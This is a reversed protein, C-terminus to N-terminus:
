VSQSNNATGTIKFRFNNTQSIIPTLSNKDITATPRPITSNPVIKDEPNLIRRENIVTATDTSEQSVVPSAQHVGFIGSIAITLSTFLWKAFDM